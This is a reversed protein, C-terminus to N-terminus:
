TRRTVGAGLPHHGAGPRHHPRYARTATDHIRPVRRCRTAQSAPIFARLRYNGNDAFVAGGEPRQTFYVVGRFLAQSAPGGDGGFGPTLGGAIRDFRGSRVDLALVETSRAIWLEGPVIFRMDGVFERALATSMVGTQRDLRRIRRNGDNTEQYVFLQGDPDFAIRLPSGLPGQFAPQGDIGVSSAGNGAYTTIIEDEEGTFIGDRGPTIRRIRHALWDAVYLTGDSDLALGRAATFVANVAPGGDARGNDALDRSV